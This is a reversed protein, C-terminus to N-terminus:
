SASAPENTTKRRKNQMVSRFTFILYVILLLIHSLLFAVSAGRLAWVRVFYWSLGTAAASVLLYTSLILMQRRQLLLIFYLMQCLAFAGGGLLIIVLDWRYASVDVKYLMNIVPVGFVYLIGCCFLTFLTILLGHRLLTSLLPAKDEEDLQSAYRNLAPKFIFQSCLNVIQVPVFLIGFYGQAASDLVGQIAYKTINLLYTMLFVSFFLPLCELILGRLRTRDFSHSSDTFRGTYRVGWIWTCVADAVVLSILATTVNKTLLLALVFALLSLIHRFFLSQGSLDLRNHQFLMSQYIGAFANIVMFASLLLIYLRQQTDRTIAMMVCCLAIVAACSLIKFWFYDSFRYQFKFDTMQYNNTGFVGVIYLLQATTLAISFRGVTEVDTARSVFLVMVFSNAAWMISGVSNWFVPRKSVTNTMRVGASSAARHVGQNKGCM